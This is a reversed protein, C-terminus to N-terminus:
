PIASQSLLTIQSQSRTDGAYRMKNHATDTMITFDMHTAATQTVSVVMGTRLSISTLGDGSGTWEGFTRLGNKRFVDPTRDKGDNPSETPPQQSLQNGPQRASKEAPAGTIESHTQIVACQDPVASPTVPQAVAGVAPEPRVARCPEDRVYTSEIHWALGALPVNGIAQESSWKEGVAIGKKPLSAGLTLQSLWQNVIASRSQDDLLGKLGSVDTIKGTPELTFEISQGEIKKYQEAIAAADADYSDSSSTAATTEYTVRIHAPGPAASADSVNLVELRLVVNVSEGTKTPGEPDLVPGSSHSASDIHM